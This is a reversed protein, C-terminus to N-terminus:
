KQLNTECLKRLESTFVDAGGKPFGDWTQIVSGDARLLLTFPFKGEPNYKDALTENQLQQQKELQNKRNRPFDANVLVLHQAATGAFTSDAFVEKKLRICPACWDSGSFNLLILRNEKVALEKAQTFDTLWEPMVTAALWLGALLIAKM